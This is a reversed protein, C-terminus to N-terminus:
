QMRFTHIAADTQLTSALDFVATGLLPDSPAKEPPVDTFSKSGTSVWPDYTESPDFYARNYKPRRAWAFEPLPPVAYSGATDGYIRRGESGGTGNPFLYVYRKWPTNAAGSKNFNMTEKGVQEDEQGRGSFAQDDSHWWAAGDNTPLLVEYDMSGSDDVILVINPKVSLQLTLPKEALTGAWATMPPLLMVLLFPLTIRLHEM